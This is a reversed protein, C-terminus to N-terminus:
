IRGKSLAAVKLLQKEKSKKQGTLKKERCNKIRIKIKRM